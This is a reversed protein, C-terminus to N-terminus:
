SQIEKQKKRLERRQKKSLHPKGNGSTESTTQVEVPTEVPAEPAHEEPKQEEVVESTTEQEQVEGDEEDSSSTDLSDEAEVKTEDPPPAFPDTDSAGGEVAPSTEVARQENSKPATEESTEGAEAVALVEPTIEPAQEAPEVEEIIFIDILAKRLYADVAMGLAVCIGEATEKRMKLDDWSWQSYLFKALPHLGSFPQVVPFGTNCLTEYVIRTLSVIEMGNMKELAAHVLLSQEEPFGISNIFKARFVTDTSKILPLRIPQNGIAAEIESLQAWPIKDYIARGLSTIAETTMGAPNAQSVCSDRLTEYILRAITFSNAPEIGDIIVALGEKEKSNIPM